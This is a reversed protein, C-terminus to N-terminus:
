PTLTDVLPRTAGRAGAVYSGVAVCSAMSCAVATLDTDPHAAAGAPLSPAPAAQWRDVGRRASGTVLASGTSQPTPKFTGAAVCFGSSQCALARMDVLAPAGSAATVTVPVSPHWGGRAGQQLLYTVPLDQEAGYNGMYSVIAVCRGAGCALSPVDVSASAAPSAGPPLPAAGAHWSGGAFSYMLAGARRAGQSVTQYYATAACSSASPCTLATFGVVVKDHKPLSVPQALESERWWAGHGSAVLGYVNGNRASYQGVATCQETSPCAVAQVATGSTGFPMPLRAAEWDSGYGTVMVPLGSPGFSGGAVCPGGPACTLAHVSTAAGALPVGNPAVVAVAAWSGGSGSVLYAEARGAATVYSGAAVCREPSACAVDSLTTGTPTKAGSPVPAKYASWHGADDWATFGAPKGSALQYGGVAVCVTASPCAVQAVDAEPDPAAGPLAFTSAAWRPVPKPQAGANPAALRGLAVLPVVLAAAVTATKSATM